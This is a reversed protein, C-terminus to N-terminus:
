QPPPDQRGSLAERVVSAEEEGPRFQNSGSPVASRGTQCTLCSTPELPPPRTEQGAVKSIEPVDRLPLEANRGPDAATVLNHSLRTLRSLFWMISRLIKQADWGYFGM